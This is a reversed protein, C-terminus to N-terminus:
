EAGRSTNEAIQVMTYAMGLLLVKNLYVLGALVFVVVAAPVAVDVDGGVLSGIVGVAGIFAIVGVFLNGLTDLLNLANKFEYVKKM